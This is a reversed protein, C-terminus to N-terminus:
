LLTPLLMSIDILSSLAADAGCEGASEDDEAIPTLNHLNLKIMEYKHWAVLMFILYMNM